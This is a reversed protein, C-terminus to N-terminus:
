AVTGEVFYRVLSIILPDWLFSLLKERMFCKQCKGDVVCCIHV